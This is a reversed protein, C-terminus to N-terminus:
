LRWICCCRRPVCDLEAASNKRIERKDYFRLQQRLISPTFFLGAGHDARLGLWAGSCAQNKAAFAIPLAACDALVMDEMERELADRGASSAFTLEEYLADFEGNAYGSIVVGAVGRRELVRREITGTFPRLSLYADYHM